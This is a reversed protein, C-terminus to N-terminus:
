WRYGQGELRTRGVIWVACMSAGSGGALLVGLLVFLVVNGLILGFATPVIFGQLVFLAVLFRVRKRLPRKEELGATPATPCTGCGRERRIYFLVSVVLGFVCAGVAETAAEVASDARLAAFAVSLAVFWVLLLASGRIGALRNRSVQSMRM